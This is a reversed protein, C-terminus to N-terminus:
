LGKSKSQTHDKVLILVNGVKHGQQVYNHARQIDKISYTSDIIPVIAEQEVLEKIFRIDQPREKADGYIVKKKKFYKTFAMQIIAKPDPFTTTFIGTETLLSKCAKFSSKCVADFVIDYKKKYKDLFERKYDIIYDAGISKVLGINDTSCVGTVEAGFHKALQVAYSGVSGSAGIILIKQDKKINAIDRLFYLATNCGMTLVASEEVSLNKPIKSIFADEEICKYEAYAGYRKFYSSAFVHDGVQFKTVNEGIEVVEGSLEVGLVTVKKPRFLGNMIRVVFPKASRFRWDAPTVSTGHIQILVQNPKPVPIPASIKKIVEPRGYKKYEYVNMLNSKKM